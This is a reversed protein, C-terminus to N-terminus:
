DSEESVDISRNEKKEIFKKLLKYKLREIEIIDAHRKKESMKNTAIDSRQEMKKEKLALHKRKLKLAEKKSKILDKNKEQKNKDYEEKLQLHKLWQKELEIKTKAINSGTSHTTLTKKKETNHSNSSSEITALNDMASQKSMKRSELNKTMPQSTSPAVKELGVKSSVTYGAATVNGKKGLFDDMVQFWEFEITGRGSKMNNDVVEKYRKMLANIKWRVQQDTVEIGHELLGM